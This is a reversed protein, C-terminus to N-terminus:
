ILFQAIINGSAFNMVALLIVFLFIVIKMLTCIDNKMMELVFFRVIFFLTSNIIITLMIM